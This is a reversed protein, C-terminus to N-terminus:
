SNVDIELSRSTNEGSDTTAEVTFSETGSSGSSLAASATLEYRWKGDSSLSFHGYKGNSDQAIFVPNDGIDVDSVTLQGSTNAAAGRTVSGAVAKAATVSASGAAVSVTQPASFVGNIKARINHVGDLLGTVGLQWRGNADAVADGLKRSGDFVEVSQGAVADGNLLSLGANANLSDVRRMYIYDKENGKGDCVKILRAVSGDSFVALGGDWNNRVTPALPAFNLGGPVNGSFWQSTSMYHYGGAGVNTYGTGISPLKSPEIGDLRNLTEGPYYLGVVKVGAAVGSQSTTLMSLDTAGNLPTSAVVSALASVSNANGVAIKPLDSAGNITITISVQTNDPMAIQFMDTRQQGKRLGQVTIASNNLNYVWHGAYRMDLSGFKGTTIKESLHTKYHPDQADSVTVDGAITTVADETVSGTTTGSVSYRQQPLPKTMTPKIVAPPTVVKSAVSTVNSCFARGPESVIVSYFVVSDTLVPNVVSHATRNSLEEYFAKAVAIGARGNRDITASVVMAAANGLAPNAIDNPVSGISLALYESSLNAAIVLSNDCVVLGSRSAAPARVELSIAELANIADVTRASALYDNYRPFAIVLILAAIGTALLVELLTFGRQTDPHM